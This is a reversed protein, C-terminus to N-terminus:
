NGGRDMRTDGIRGLRREIPHVAPFALVGRNSSVM